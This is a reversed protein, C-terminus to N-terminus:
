GDNAPDNPNFNNGTNLPQKQLLVGSPLVDINTVEPAFNQQLFPVKVTGLRPARGRDAQEGQLVALRHCQRIESM